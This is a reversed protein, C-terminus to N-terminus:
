GNVKLGIFSLSFGGSEYRPGGALDSKVEHTFEVPENEIAGEWVVDNHDTLRIITGHFLQIFEQVEQLKGRGVNSFTLSIRQLSPNRIYTHPTGDISEEYELAIDHAQEDTFDPNPLVTLATPASAPASLIVTM